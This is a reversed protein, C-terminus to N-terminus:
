RFRLKLVWAEWSKQFDGVTKPTIQSKLTEIGTSDEKSDAVFSKYFDRLKGQEQLWYCLYRAQAYNTADGDYFERTTTSTLKEFSGLRDDKIALQLGRLRWNTLGVIRSNRESSQEYLSALGENFWSPCDPFNTEIFPHVIEHVLTGGGTAINMVLVKHDSSYFGYPTGPEYGVLRKAGAKYTAADRFLWIEIIAEPDKEFYEKKLKGICWRITGTAWRKVEEPSQNGVVVFPCEVAVTFDTGELSKRLNAARQRLTERETAHAAEVPVEVAAVESQSRGQVASQAQQMAAGSPLKAVLFIAAAISALFLILNRSNM